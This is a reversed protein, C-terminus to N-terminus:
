ANDHGENELDELRDALYDTADIITLPTGIKDAHAQYWRWINQRTLKGAEEADPRGALEWRRIEGFLGIEEANTWARAVVDLTQYGDVDTDKAAEEGGLRMLRRLREPLELESTNPMM